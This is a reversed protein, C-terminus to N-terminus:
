EFWVCHFDILDGKFGSIESQEISLIDLGFYWIVKLDAAFHDYCNTCFDLKNLGIKEMIKRVNEYTEPIGICIALIFLKKVSSNKHYTRKAAKSVRRGVIKGHKSTISFFIIYLLLIIKLKKM